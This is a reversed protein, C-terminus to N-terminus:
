RFHHRLTRSWRNDPLSPELAALGTAYKSIRQPRHGLRWLAQDFVTPAGASKTEVVVLDPRSLRSGTALETWDLDTDITIRAADDPALLTQRQYRSRLTPRLHAVGSADIRAAHLVESVFRRAPDDLATVGASAIRQKVSRDGTRTKVEVFSAGTDLYCRTRVKWRRDRGWAAQRYSELEPTDFYTSQYGFRDAGDITLVRTQQPARDLLADLQDSRLVYKRDVRTMLEARETLEALSIPAFDRTMTTTPSM